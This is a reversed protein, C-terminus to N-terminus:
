SVDVVLVAAISPSDGRKHKLSNSARGEGVWCRRTEMAVREMEGGDLMRQGSKAKVSSTAARTMSLPYSIAGDADEATAAQSIVDHAM